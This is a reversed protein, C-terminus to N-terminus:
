KERELAMNIGEAVMFSVQKIVADIDKSTVYM